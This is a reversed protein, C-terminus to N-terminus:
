FGEFQRRRIEGVRVFFGDYPRLLDPIALWRATDLTVRTHFPQANLFIGLLHDLAGRRGIMKRPSLPCTLSRWRIGM